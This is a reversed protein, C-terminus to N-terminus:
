KIESLRTELWNRDLSALFWGAKPGSGQGLIVGYIAKFAEGPKIEAATLAAYIAEHMSQGDGAPVSPLAEALRRLFSRQGDSLEIEPLKEQVTFKVSAPAYQELWYRVYELEREIIPWQEAVIKEYGTREFILKAQAADGRSAQEVAVLHSFPVRAITRESSIASAVAYAHEFEPHGGALVEDEIKSFEDILNYVGLGPDFYLVRKPQSRLVFFRLIEAPMIRLAEAPTVLNGLSSSMKKNDGLMNITDYALPLLPEKGFIEKLFVEGTDYSGGKTAHEKGYPEVQVGWLAWRAPWDLRWNLKVQGDNYPMEGQTGDPKSYVLTKTKVDHSVYRWENFSKTDSLIQIPAWDEGLDRNSVEKFIRRIEPIKALAEEIYPTMKGNLYQDEYSYIVDMEVGMDRAATRFEEAYHTAYSHHCKFPDPVLCIPWGVYNEYEEPLFHYRKRLPDFNDVVHMHRVKRGRQKIAWAIGDATLVERFHGVHYSASPSIGSSVLIDGTPYKKVAEDAIQDLWYNSTSPTQGTAAHADNQHNEPTSM